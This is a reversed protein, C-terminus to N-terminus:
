SVTNIVILETYNADAGDKIYSKNPRSVEQMIRTSIIAHRAIESLSVTAQPTDYIGFPTLIGTITVNNSHPIKAVNVYHGYMHNGFLAFAYAIQLLCLETPLTSEIISIVEDPSTAQYEVQAYHRQSSEAFRNSSEGRQRNLYHKNWDLTVYPEPYGKIQQYGLKIAAPHCLYFGEGDTYRTLLSLAKWDASETLTTDYHPELSPILKLNFRKCYEWDGQGQYISTFNILNNPMSDAIASLWDQELLMMTTFNLSKVRYNCVIYYNKM